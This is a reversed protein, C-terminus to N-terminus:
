DDESDDSSGEASQFAKGQTIDLGDRYLMPVKYTESQRIRELFGMDLLVRLAGRTAGAACGLTKQLSDLNHEAKGGRFKEIV